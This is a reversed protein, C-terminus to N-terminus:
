DEGVKYSMGELAIGDYTVPDENYNVYIKVGNSYTVVAVNDASKERDTIVANQVSDAVEKLANYYATIEDRYVAYRSTYLDASNTYLLDVPDEWTLYFSPFIGTEVLELFYENKNAEFNTYDAYMPLIGKLAISLFPVEEDTFIYNSTNVPMGVVSDTLNWYCSIPEEMALAFDQAAETLAKQFVELTQTRNYQKGNYNYSFIRNTIGTLALADVGKKRYSSLSEKLKKQAQAPTQYHFTEYVEKYTDEKYVSEDLKKIINFTTNVTDPNARLADQYLYLDIGAEKTEALLKTLEGTGGIKADAKYESVPMSWIGGSQWGKYVSFIDTVGLAALDAYMDRINEVTTMVVPKKFIMGNERDCGLFDLRIKFGEDKTALAQEGTLYERYKVAMGAYDAEEQDTFIYSVRIARLFFSM